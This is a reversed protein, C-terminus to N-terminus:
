RPYWIHKFRIEVIQSQSFKSGSLLETDNKVKVTKGHLQFDQFPLRLKHTTPSSKETIEFTLINNEPSLLRIQRNLEESKTWGYRKSVISLM